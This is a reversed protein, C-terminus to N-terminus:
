PAAAQQQQQAVAQWKGSSKAAFLMALGKSADSFCKKVEGICAGVEDSTAVEKFAVRGNLALSALTGAGVKVAATGVVRGTTFVANSVAVATPALAGNLAYDGVQTIASTVKNAVGSAAASWTTIATKRELLAIQQDTADTLTVIFKDGASRLSADIELSKAINLVSSATIADDFTQEVTGIYVIAGSAADITAPM